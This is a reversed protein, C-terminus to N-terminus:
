SANWASSINSWVLRSAHADHKKRVAAFTQAILSIFRDWPHTPITTEFPTREDAMM